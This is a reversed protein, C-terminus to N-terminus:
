YMMSVGHAPTARSCAGLTVASPSFSEHCAFLTVLIRSASGSFRPQSLTFAPALLYTEGRVLM